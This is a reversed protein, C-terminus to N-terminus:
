IIQNAIFCTLWAGDEEVLLSGEFSWRAVILLLDLFSCVRLARFVRHRRALGFCCPLLFLACVGPSSSSCAWGVPLFLARVRRRHCALGALLYFCRVSGAVIVLLAYVVRHHRALGFCCHAFDVCLGSPSSSSCAWGVCVVRHRHALGFCCHAFVICPGDPSSSCFCHMSWGDVIVVISM